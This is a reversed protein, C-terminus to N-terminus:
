ASCQASVGTRSFQFVCSNLTKLFVQLLIRVDSLEKRIPELECGHWINWWVCHWLSRIATSALGDRCHRIQNSIDQLLSCCREVEQAVARALTEYLPTHEYAQIACGTLTLPECLLTLEQEFDLFEDWPGGHLVGIINAIQYAALNIHLLARFSHNRPIHQFVPVRGCDTLSDARDASGNCFAPPSIGVNIVLAHKVRVRNNVQDRGVNNFVCRSVHHCHNSPMFYSVHLLATGM